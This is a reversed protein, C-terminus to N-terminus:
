RRYHLGSRLPQCDRASRCPDVAWARQAHREKNPFSEEMQKKRACASRTISCSRVNSFTRHADLYVRLCSLVITSTRSVEQLELHKKPNTLFGEAKTMDNAQRRNLSTTRENTRESAKRSDLKGARYRLFVDKYQHFRRLANDMLNLTAEDHSTYSAYFFELLARTCLIARDFVGRQAPTPGHLANRFVALLFTSMRKLAKGTWHSVEEYAMNPATFTLYSPVSLWLNNFRELRKHDALFAHIWELLHKLMGLHM